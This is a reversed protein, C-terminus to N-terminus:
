TRNPTKSTRNGCANCGTCRNLDITMAWKYGDYEYAPYLSTREAAHEPRMFAPNEPDAQLEELTGSRVLDRGEMLHHHQTCALEVRLGTPRVTAASLQWPSEHSQMAYANFGLNSGVRGARLRGYGVHLTVTREPQGPVIWASTELSRDDHDFQIVDGNSLGLRGALGPSVLAANDWTLKTLPKPLEQLWGNNAFRGDWITPDPRFVIEVSEGGREEFQRQARIGSDEGPEPLPSALEVSVTSFETDPMIGDHLATQWAADFLVADAHRQQWYEKFITDATRGADGLLV